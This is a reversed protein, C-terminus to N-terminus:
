QVEEFEDLGATFFKAEKVTLNAVPGGAGPTGGRPGPNNQAMVIASFVFSLLCLLMWRSWRGTEAQSTM